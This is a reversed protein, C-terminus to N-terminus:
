LGLLIHQLYGDNPLVFLFSFFVLSKMSLEHVCCYFKTCLNNEVFEIGLEIAVMEMEWLM